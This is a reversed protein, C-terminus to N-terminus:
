RAVIGYVVLAGLLVAFGIMLWLPSGHPPEELKDTQASKSTVEESM